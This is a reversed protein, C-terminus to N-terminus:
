PTRAHAHAFIPTSLVEADRPAALGLSPELGFWDNLAVLAQSAAGRMLNDITAFVPVHGGHAVPGVALFADHSGVASKLGLRGDPADLVHVYPHSAHHEVLCARLDAPTVGSRPAVFATITLGRAVPLLQTVLSVPAGLHHEIEPRHRHHGVNYPLVNSELHCFHLDDRLGKGAGSAGSAGVVCAGSPDVLSGCVLPALALLTATPYCGPNAVLRAGEPTPGCLERLAYHVDDERRHSDSLDLVRRCGTQMLISTWELAPTAPVALAVADVGALAALTSPDGPIARGSPPVRLEFKPHEALLTALVQGAYGSCGILAITNVHSM